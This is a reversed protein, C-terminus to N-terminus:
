WNGNTEDIALKTIGIVGILGTVTTALVIICGTAIKIKNLM